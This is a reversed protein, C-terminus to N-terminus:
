ALSMLHPQPQLTLAQLTSRASNHDQSYFRPCSYKLLPQQLAFKQMPRYLPIRCERQQQLAAAARFSSKMKWRSVINTHQSPFLVPNSTSYILIIPRSFPISSPFSLSLSVIGCKLQRATYGRLVFVQVYGGTDELSQLEPGPPMERDSSSLESEKVSSKLFLPLSERLSDAEFESLEPLGLENADILFAEIKRGISNTQGNAFKTKTQSEIAVIEKYGDCFRM